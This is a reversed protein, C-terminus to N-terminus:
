RRVTRRRKPRPVVEIVAEESVAIGCTNIARATIRHTGPALSRLTIPSGIGLFVDGEHWEVHVLGTGSTIAALIMWEGANIRAANTDLAITPAVCPGVIIDAVRSRWISMGAVVSLIIATSGQRLGRVEIKVSSGNAPIAGSVSAVSPDEVSFWAGYLFMSPSYDANVIVMEGEVVQVPNPTVGAALISALVLTIM